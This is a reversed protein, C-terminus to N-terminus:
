HGHRPNMPLLFLWLFLGSLLLLLVLHPLVRSIPSKERQAIRRAVYFSWLIGLILAVLSLISNAGPSPAEQAAAFGSLGMGALSAQLARPGEGILHSLNHGLHGGLALPLYAYGFLAFNEFLRERGGRSSLLSAFLYLSLLGGVGLLLTISFGLNYSEIGIREILLRMYDGYLTTMDSTQIFVLSVMLIALFAEGVLPRKLLWLEQGPPRLRLELAKHPCSKLCNGCLNCNRNSEMMMPFEFLPCGGVGQSGRYCERTRCKGRCAGGQKPRLGLIAAMSYLGSLAGLPCLYRCWTRRTYFFGMLLGGVLIAVLLAATARPSRTIGWIRDAWTVGLFSLSMLWIGYRKLFLGPNRRPWPLLRDAWSFLTAPPCVACWLRGFLLFSLPLLPWWLTWTLLTAPNQSSRLTGFLAFLLLLLFFSLIPLQLLFPYFRSELFSRLGPYRLLDLASRPPETLAKVVEQTASPLSAM